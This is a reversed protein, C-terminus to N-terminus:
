RGTTALGAVACVTELPGPPSVWNGQAYDVGLARLREFAAGSAVGEAVTQLGMVHGVQNISEVMARDLPDTAMDKVFKGDIKLVSVPIEKLYSYSSMGTGFDDLAFRFGAASLTTLLRAAQDLNEIAATETIEFCIKGAPVPFRTFQELVYDLFTEDGLSVASLNIACTGLAALFPEPQATLTEACQRVVWRDISRM